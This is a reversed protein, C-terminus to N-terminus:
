TAPGEPDGLLYPLRVGREGLTASGKEGLPQSLM